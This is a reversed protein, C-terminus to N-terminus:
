LRRASQERLGQDELDETPQCNSRPHTSSLAREPSKRTSMAVCDVGVMKTVVLSKEVFIARDELGGIHALRYQLCVIWCQALDSQRLGLEKGLLDIIIM